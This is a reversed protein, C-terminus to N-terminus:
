PLAVLDDGHHQPGLGACALAEVPDSRDLDPGGAPLGRNREHPDRVELDLDLRAADPAEVLLAGHHHRALVRFHGRDLEVVFQLGPEARDIHGAAVRDLDISLDLACLLRVLLQEREGRMREERDQQQEDELEVRQAPGRLGRITSSV